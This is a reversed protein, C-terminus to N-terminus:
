FIGTNNYTPDTMHKFRRLVHEADKVMQEKDQPLTGALPLFNSVHNSRFICSSTVNINEVLLKLEQLIEYPSLPHFEGRDAAARLPTGEQLMLTLASLMTPNIASVVRASNKAHQESKEKGGLGLIVMASLKIGAAVVKQGAEIMEASTAGKCVEALVEDDGSEIGLYIIQLGANKLAILEEPTKRLIDKPGGYCTIRQLKPFSDTIIQMIELLKDNKLVLADGDALFIRRADPYYRAANKILDKIEEMPRTRFKVGRYMGCFTCNNHACGITVRIILSKAESPPRFVMGEANDFYM